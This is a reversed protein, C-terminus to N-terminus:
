MTAALVDSIIPVNILGSVDHRGYNGINASVRGEWNNTPKNLSVSIAGGTANRGFLTGQPGRLVQVSSVDSIDLMAGAARGIYIGDIYTSVASDLTVKTERQGIGRIFPSSDKKVGNGGGGLNLGPVIGELDAFNRVGFTKLDEASLATISIPIDQVAEERRRATVLVEEISGQAPGAAALKLNMPTQAPTKAILVAGTDTVQYDLGSGRLLMELAELPQKAGTVAPAKKGEAINPSFLIQRSSQRAYESLASSLSQSPIDFTVTAVAADAYQTPAAALILATGLMLAAIRTPKLNLINM